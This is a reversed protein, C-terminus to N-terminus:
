SSHDAIIKWEGNVEEFILSFHGTPQDTRRNLTWKGIVFFHEDGLPMVKLLEIALTGMAERDPYSRKYNNLTVQWGYRPGGSGIFVLDDSHLYTEMFCDLDGENWCDVQRDLVRQIAREQAFVSVMMLLGLLTIFMRM